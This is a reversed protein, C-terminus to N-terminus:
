LSVITPVTNRGNVKTVPSSPILTAPTGPSCSGSAKQITQPKRTATATMEIRTMRQRLHSYGRSAAAPFRQSSYTFLPHKRRAAGNPHTPQYVLVSMCMCRVVQRSDLGQVAPKGHPWLLTNNRREPGTRARASVFHGSSIKDMSKAKTQRRAILLNIQIMNM